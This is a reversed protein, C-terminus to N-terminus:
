MVSSDIARTASTRTQGRRTVVALVLAALLVGVCTGLGNM